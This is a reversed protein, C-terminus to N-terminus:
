GGPRSEDLMAPTVSSLDPRGISKSYVLVVKPGVDLLVTVPGGGLFGAYRGPKVPDAKAQWCFGALVFLSVVLGYKRM